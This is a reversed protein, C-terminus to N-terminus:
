TLFTAPGIPAPMPTASLTTAMPPLGGQNSGPNDWIIPADKANPVNKVDKSPPIHAVGTPLGSTSPTPAQAHVMTGALFVALVMLMTAPKGLSKMLLAGGVALWLGAFLTIAMYLPLDPTVPRVPTRAYDVVIINSSHVGAALRAEEVKAMVRMYLERSTNAEQRMLVYETAAQNLKMGADTHEELSKRVMQERDQATQWSSRFRDVLKADEALVQRDLDQLQGRIELVRPFNPGHDVKLQAQELELESHRAHIQQLLATAFNGYEAQLRPDSAVVLEPDGHSAARYEAERLIRDTTAAVLQRGLEDIELLASIHQTEGQQGNAMTEPTSLIAHESQFAALRQEDRDVRAKLSTLQSQLWDSAQSTAQVTSESDLQGYAKILQNVVAASLAADGSGIRIQILMTRPLTQVYLRRQFRELLWAQADPGPAEPRFGPFRRGFSGKFGPAQYLKLDNIVRWALQDSRFVNALTEQQVPASLISAAVYPEAAELSLSSAPATRLAVKASAEYQNPAILCYLLCLLLLGGLVAGIM